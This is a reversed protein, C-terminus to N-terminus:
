NLNTSNPPDRVSGEGEPPEVDDIWAQTSLGDANGNESGPRYEVTYSFPQLSLAWRMLRGNTNHMREIYTLARHDTQISFTRGLLYPQFHQLSAIIALCEKEVSSYRTERPLLKKSFYAIPHEVGEEMKQSLVAGIGRESADTQLIFPRDYDPNTLVPQKSLVAKLQRFAQDCPPTWEVITPAASKTLDSLCATISSFGPLFRRYYGALGLFARM